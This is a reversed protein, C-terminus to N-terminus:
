YYGKGSKKMHNIILIIRKKLHLLTMCCNTGLLSQMNLLNLQNLKDKNEITKNEYGVSLIEKEHNNIDFM